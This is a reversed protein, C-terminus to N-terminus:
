LAVIEADVDRGAVALCCFCPQGLCPQSVLYRLSPLPLTRNHSLVAQYPHQLLTFIAEQQAKSAAVKRKVM